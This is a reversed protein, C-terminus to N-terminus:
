SELGVAYLFGADVELAIRALPLTAPGSVAKGAQRIDFISFHCGCALVPSTSRYNYSVAIAEYNQNPQVLCGQHTCIRSFAIFHKANVTLGGAIAEPVRLVIAPITELMFEHHSWLPELSALDTIRTKSKSSFEPNERPLAKRVHKYFAYGAFAAGGMALIVPLRWLWLMLQRRSAAIEALKEPNDENM